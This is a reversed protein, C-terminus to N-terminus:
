FLSLIRAEVEAASISFEKAAATKFEDWCKEVRYYSEVEKEVTM